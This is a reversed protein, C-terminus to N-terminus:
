WHLTVQFIRKIGAADGVIVVHRFGIRIRVIPMSDMVMLKLEEWPTGLFLRVVPGLAWHM